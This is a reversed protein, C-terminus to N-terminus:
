SDLSCRSNPLDILRPQYQLLTNKSDLPSRCGKQKKKDEVEAPICQTRKKHTAIDRKRRGASPSRDFHTAVDRVDNLTRTNSYRTCHNSVLKGTFGRKVCDMEVKQEVRNLKQRTYAESTEGPMRQRSAEAEPAQVYTEELKPM